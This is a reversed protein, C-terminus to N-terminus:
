LTMKITLFIGVYGAGQRRLFNTLGLFFQNDVNILAGTRKADKKNVIILDTIFGTAKVSDPIYYLGQQQNNQALVPLCFIISYFFLLFRKM